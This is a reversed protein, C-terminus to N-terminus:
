FSPLLAGRFIAAVWRAGRFQRCIIGSQERKSEYANAGFVGAIPPLLLKELHGITMADETVIFDTPHAAVVVKAGLSSLLHAV